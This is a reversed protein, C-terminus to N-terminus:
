ANLSGILFHMVGTKLQEEGLFGKESLWSEFFTRFKRAEQHTAEIDLDMQGATFVLRQAFSGTWTDLALSHLEGEKPFTGYVVTMSKNPDRTVWSLVGIIPNTNLPIKPIESDLHQYFHRFAESSDTNRQFLQYEPSKHSLGKVQRALGRIRYITDVIQWASGIASLSTGPRPNAKDSTREITRLLRWLRTYLAKEIELSLRIADIVFVQQQEVINRLVQM